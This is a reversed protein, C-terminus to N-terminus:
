ATAGGTKRKARLGKILHVGKGFYSRKDFSRGAGNWVDKIAAGNNVYRSLIAPPTNMRWLGGIVIGVKFLMDIPNDPSKTGFMLTSIILLFVAYALQTTACAKLHTWWAKFHHEHARFVWCSLVVPTLMSLAIIDFWRRFNQLFVPILMSILAIDFGVFLLTELWSTINAQIGSLGNAIQNKGIDIILNTVGNIAKFGYYFASPALASGLLVLPMRRLIRPMETHKDYPKSSLHSLIKQFGEYIVLLISMALSLGTFTVINDKFWTSDFLFLPTHLVVSQVTDLSWTMLDISMDTVNERLNKFWTVISDMWNITNTFKDQTEKPIPNFKDLISASVQVATTSM